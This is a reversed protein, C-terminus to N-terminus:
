TKDQGARKELLMRRWESLKNLAELPSLGNLDLAELEKLIPHAEDRFLPLQEPRPRHPTPSTQASDQELEALIEMARQVVVKPLGALQAVHIGYSRDAGGPVIRRLFVVKGMEEVVAVNYNRVRPLLQALETLEHYHTAFLTKARWRPHNHIYEVVAWAISIGDYTSTGRGIEDLILLSRSTAHHLIHATEIMEVMFTSQGAAIEDRAGIRTFIRDVLGIRTEDAPVFSGMQAMLAILAVQRLYTSKGAMNPGTLVIIQEESDLHTPNPVFPEDRLTLEVVPHRGALIHIADNEDLQPRVYRNRVAVEALACYVDLQALARATAQLRAAYGSIEECVGYFLQTELAVQQQAANLIMDEYRKMEPTIFREGGAITQKRLYDSPARQLNPKSVEIYYGFIKNFGVKLSKIGTRARERKELSAMWDRAERSAAQLEDLERSFGAPIIGVEGLSAAADERIARAILQAVEECPDLEAVLDSLPSVQVQIAKVLLERVERTRELTDRMAWLDRPGAMRQAVRRVTRELDRLKGLRERLEIRLPGQRYLAEVIDLRRNLAELELLPQSLWQRLLRGGMPTQTVDLVGLLSSSVAGGRITQTLELNRRTAPDLTMFASTSYTRLGDLQALSSPQTEGLYQIISGAAGIALPKDQCGFGELSAVQFHDLLAQRAQEPEFRWAPYPSLHFGNLKEVPPPAEMPVLCEAPQLRALEQQLQHPADAGGFQTVAFEGTTIDVYALGIEEGRAVVAALYNNRKAELLGPEVLTGPTLVRVVQRAM